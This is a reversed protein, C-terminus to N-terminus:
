NNEEHLNRWGEITLGYGDLGALRTPQTGSLYIMRRVGLDRLIQAGVGYERIPATPDSAVS